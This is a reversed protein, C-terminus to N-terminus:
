FWQNLWSRDKPNKAVLRIKQTCTYPCGSIKLTETNNLRKIFYNPLYAIAIGRSVYEEILKLSSTLYDIRRPFQDDRWGDLSQKNGVKGFLPNNPSVFTHELVTEIKVTKKSQASLFLPHKEGVVTKFETETLVKSSLELSSPIDYTVIALHAEGRTVLQIAENEDSPIFEFIMKPFKKKLDQSITVGMESLLIEPGAITVKISGLHGALELRTTEELKMIESARKQLLRGHDTLHINRGERSFLVVSLEDELRAVAKSLSAPSVSLYEAARHINEFKAVGLFYKLEFIEM